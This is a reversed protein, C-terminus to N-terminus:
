GAKTPPIVYAQCPKQPLVGTNYIANILATLYPALSPLNKYIESPLGDPGPARNSALQQIAKRVEVPRVEAFGERIPERFPSLPRLNPNDQVSAPNIVAPAALKTRFTGNMPRVKGRHSVVTRGEADVLPSLHAPASGWTKRGEKRALYAFFARTDRKDVGRLFARWRDSSIRRMLKEAHYDDGLEIASPLYEM